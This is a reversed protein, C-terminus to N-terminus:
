MGSENCAERALDCLVKITAEKTGTLKEWEDQKDQHWPSPSYFLLLTKSLTELTPKKM